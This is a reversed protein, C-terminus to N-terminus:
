VKIGLKDVFRMQELTTFPTTDIDITVKVIRGQFPHTGRYMTSVQNGLDAGLSFGDYSTSLVCHTFKHEAVKRDGIFLSGGGEFPRSTMKQVYRVTVDGDPVPESSEIRENWPFMSQEYVLRGGTIHLVYGAPQSGCAVIVGDGKGAPRQLEAVIEHDFGNMFPSVQASIREVPPRFEWHRRLGRRLRDQSMKIVLNRDDLPFVGYREAAANWKAALEKVKEPNSAALNVLENPDKSLDFLEWADNEFPTGREHRCALRWNGDLYGRQGGLEFYQETRTAATASAFTAVVSAGEIPKLKRGRYVDPRKIGAAELITPYLDVVHVFRDRIEGRATIRKPWSVLLPDAVGGLHAYQKYMRFPTNSACAWGIPYHPFTPNEGIIDYHKIAEDVPVPRGLAAAFVNPTGTTTGEASGGNDSIVMILTNDRVGIEDLSDILRGIQGDVSTIAGAYVEMYRAYIKKQTPDLTDWSDAGPSLPPLQTTEPMVGLKRQRELRAARIVDWGADYTGKYADRDRARAQLPSHATPYAVQLYFPKEPALSQQTRVYAIARDTLDETVFYDDKVPAEVPSVGDILESPRFYDTSHGQFWFAREFGRNTPWNHYPGNAGCSAALNVHWKGVHMTSWGADRLVEALTAAELTMDGRYGAYGSDLDALWGMGASHHNLGTMLSARTPSCMACTRFNTYRLGALAIGDLNPTRIESGYVGLDSFGVDDLVIVLINPSGAKASVEGVYSPRSDAFSEAVEAPAGADVEAPTRLKRTKERVSVIGAAGLATVVAGSTAGILFDRRKIGAKKPEDSM